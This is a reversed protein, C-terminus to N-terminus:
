HMGHGTHRICARKGSGRARGSAHQLQATVGQQPALGFDPHPSAPCSPSEPVSRCKRRTVWFCDSCGRVREPRM